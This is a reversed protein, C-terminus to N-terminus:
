NISHYSLHYIYYLINGLFNGFLGLEDLEQFKAINKFSSLMNSSVSLFKLKDLQMLNEINKIRNSRMELKILHICKDINEIKNVKNNNIILIQLNCFYNLEKPMENLENAM